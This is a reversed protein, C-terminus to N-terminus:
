GLCHGREPRKSEPVFDRINFSDALKDLTIKGNLVNTAFTVGAMDASLDIFSFGSDGHADKIEKAIGARNRALQASNSRLHALFSLISHRIM